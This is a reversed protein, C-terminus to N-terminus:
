LGRLYDWSLIGIVGRGPVLDNMQGSLCQDKYFSFSVLHSALHQGERDWNVSEVHGYNRISM